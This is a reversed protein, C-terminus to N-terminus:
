GAFPYDAELRYLSPAGRRLWSSYLGFGDAQWAASAFLAQGREFAQMRAPDAGRVSALTIHPSFKRTEAPLCLRRALREIDAALARLPVSESLGLWVTHPDERGFAGVGQVQLAFPSVAQALGALADDLERAVDERLEGFFRLTVHLSERPRWHAGAIGAQLPTIQAAIPDPLPLAAFLRLAM